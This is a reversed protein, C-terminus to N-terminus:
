EYYYGLYYKILEDYAKFKSDNQEIADEVIIGNSNSSSKIKFVQTDAVQKEFSRWDHSNDKISRGNGRM